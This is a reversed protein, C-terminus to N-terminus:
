KTHCADLRIQLEEQKNKLQIVYLTLEEIKEMMKSQMEGMSVGSKELEAASPINPLHGNRNIYAQIEELSKLEYSPGFVYDPWAANLQVKLEECIIKGNVSLKYGTAATGTNIMVDGDKNITLNGGPSNLSVKGTTNGTSIGILLDNGSNQIYSKAVNSSNYFQIYNNTGILDIAAGGGNISLKAGPNSTGIGVNGNNLITMKPGLNLYFYLNGTANAGTTGINMNGNDCQIYAKEVSNNHFTLYPAAADLRLLEGTGKLHLRCSPSATGIAVNGSSNVILKTSSNVMVKFPSTGSAANVSLTSTPSETGIGVKDSFYGRGKFYGAYDNSGTAYGYIGYNKYNGAAIGYVAINKDDVTQTGTVNGNAIGYIGYHAGGANTNRNWGLVGAGFDNDDEKVGTVGIYNLTSPINGILM